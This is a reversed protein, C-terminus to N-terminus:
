NGWIRLNKMEGRFQYEPAQSGSYQGLYLDGFWNALSKSVPVQAVTQGNQQIRMQGNEVIFDMHLWENLPVPSASDCDTGSLHFRWKEQFKQIFWGSRNWVGYGVPVPMIGPETFKIDFSVALFGRANLDEETLVSFWGRDTGLDVTEMSFLERPLSVPASKQEPVDLSGVYVPESKKPQFMSLPCRNVISKREPIIGEALANLESITDGSVRCTGCTLAPDCVFRVAYFWKGQKADADIFRNMETTGVLTKESLAFDPKEGRHIEAALGIVRKDNPWSLEPKGSLTLSLEIKPMKEPLPQPLIQRSRGAIAGGNLEFAGPMDIRPSAYAQRSARKIITLIQRYVADDTSQISVAPEGSNPDSAAVPKWKQTPFSDLPRVAHEYRGGSMIGLRRFKQDFKANRCAGIGLLNGDLQKGAKLASQAEETKLAMPARLVRSYEPKELNIWDNEFRGIEGKENTHCERCSSNKMVERIQNAAQEWPRLIPGSQTYNWTGFYLGNSDIWTFLLEREEKTLLEKHTPDNLVREALPANGSGHEYPQFIRCSWYATGNMCCIASILDVHYQTERRSTLNDYSINFLRTPSSSLDLGAAIGEDGGHCRVCKRDFIPQIMSPYDLYGSGWSEDQPVLPLSKAAMKMPGPKGMPPGYEHCGTCSRATGPAAQIFTRMSRILRYNEDLLQFYIARGSPAEFSVSGDECVPVIGHYIKPSWALAASIGFTQNLGNSGPSASVRSTEEVVRLWKVAGRKVGKLGEYVDTVFFSGTTKSRDTNDVLVPPVPRPIVPIPTHLDITASSLLETKNGKDDILMLSNFKGGNTPNMIQGSYLVLTKDLAWPDCSQGRDYTPHDPYELNTIANEDNKGSVSNQVGASIDIFAITGRPPANHPAFTGVVLNPEGPVPKAQLIAEPFVMNNAFYATENTGDPYVSWLSQITLANKDIYEWRGFLIRGDPLVSPDFETVNNVSITHIDSGDANMVHLIAVGNNACPVLGSYRTSTFVIRGDPLWAPRVDHHGGGSGKYPNGEADLNTLQKLGTGDLNIRYIVSNGNPTGKYCFLLTKGDYSLAPDSYIGDGLTPETTPDIIPRIRYKEPPDSPNELIYIGSTGPDKVGRRWQYFTDYIHLGQYNHRASFLIPFTLRAKPSVSAPELAQTDSNRFVSLMLVCLVCLCFLSRVNTKM